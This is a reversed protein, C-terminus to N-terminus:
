KIISVPKSVASYLGTGCVTYICDLSEKLTKIQTEPQGQHSLQISTLSTILIDRTPDKDPIPDKDPRAVNM